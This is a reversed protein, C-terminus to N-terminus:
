SDARRGPLAQELAAALAAPRRTCILVVGDWVAGAQNARVFTYGQQVTAPFRADVSAPETVLRLVGRRGLMRLDGMYQLTRGSQSKVPRSRHLQRVQEPTLVQWSRIADLPGSIRRWLRTAPPVGLAGLVFRGDAIEIGNPLDAVVLLCYLGSLIAVVLLLGAAGGSGTVALGAVSGILLCLALTGGIVPFQSHRQTYRIGYNAGPLAALPIQETGASTPYDAASPRPGIAGPPLLDAASARGGRRVAWAGTGTLLALVLVFVIGGAASSGGKTTAAGVIAAVGFLVLLVTLVSLVWGAVTRGAPRQSSTM